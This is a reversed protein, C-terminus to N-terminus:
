LLEEVTKLEDFFYNRDDEKKIETGASQALDLYGRGKDVDGSVASARALAEYAFLMSKVFDLAAKPM